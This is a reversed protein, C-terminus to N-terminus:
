DFASDPTYGVTPSPRTQPTFGKHKTFGTPKTPPTPKTFGVAQGARTRPRPRRALARILAQQQRQLVDDDATLPDNM